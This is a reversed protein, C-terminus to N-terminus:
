APPMQRSRQMLTVRTLPRPEPLQSAEQVKPMADIRDFRAQLHSLAEIRVAAWFHSRAWLYTAMNAILKADGVLWTRGAPCLHLVDLLRRYQDSAAPGTTVTEAIGTENDRRQRGRHRHAVWAVRQTNRAPAGGQPKRVRQAELAIPQRLFRCFAKGESWPGRWM